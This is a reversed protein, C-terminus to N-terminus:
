HKETLPVYITERIRVPHHRNGLLWIWRERERERKEREYVCVREEEVERCSIAFHGPKQVYNSNVYAVAPIKSLFLFSSLLAFYRGTSIHIFAEIKKCRKAMNLM